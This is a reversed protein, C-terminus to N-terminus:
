PPALEIVEFSNISRGFDRDRDSLALQIRGSPNPSLEFRLQGLGAAFGVSTVSLSTLLLTALLALSRHM